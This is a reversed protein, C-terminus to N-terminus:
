HIVQPNYKAQSGPAPTRFGAVTSKSGSGTGEAQSSEVVFYYTTNPELNQVAVRHFSSGWPAQETQELNNRDTGYHVISSSRANTSWDIVAATPTVFEVAPGKVIVLANASAQAPSGNPSESPWTSPPETSGAQDPPSANQQPPNQAAAAQGTTQFKGQTRVEGADTMIAFYYETGPQLNSLTVSHITGGKQSQQQDLNEPDTGYHLLTAAKRNTNWRITARTERPEVTPGRTITISDKDPDNNAQNRTTPEQRQNEKDAADQTWALGTLAM